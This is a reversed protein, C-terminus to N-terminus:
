NHQGTQNTLNFGSIVVSKLWLNAIFLVAVHYQSEHVDLDIKIVNNMSAVM